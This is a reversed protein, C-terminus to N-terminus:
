QEQNKSYLGVKEKSMWRLFNNEDNLCQLAKISFSWLYKDKIYSRVYQDYLFCQAGQEDYRCSSDMHKKIKAVYYLKKLFADSIEFNKEKKHSQIYDSFVTMDVLLALVKDDCSSLKEHLMTQRLFIGNASTRPLITEYLFIIYNPINDRNYIIEKINSERSSAHASGMVFLSLFLLVNKKLQNM